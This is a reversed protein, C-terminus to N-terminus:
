FVVLNLCQHPLGPQQLSLEQTTLFKLCCSPRLTDLTSSERVSLPLDREAAHRAQSRQKRSTKTKAPPATPAAPQADVRLVGAWAKIADDVREQLGAAQRLEQKDSEM